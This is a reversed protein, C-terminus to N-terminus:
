NRFQFCVSVLKLIRLKVKIGDFYNLKWDRQLLQNEVYFGGASVSLNM